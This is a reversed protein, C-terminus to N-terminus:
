PPAAAPPPGPPAAAGPDPPRPPPPPARRARPRAALRLLALLSALYSETYTEARERPALELAGNWGAGQGTLAVVAAGAALARDHAARAYATEGTHSIVIVGDDARPAPHWRAAEASALARAAVGARGLAMGGRRAAR